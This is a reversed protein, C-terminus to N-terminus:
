RESSVRITEAAAAPTALLTVAALALLAHRRSVNM